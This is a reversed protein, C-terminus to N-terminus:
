RNKKYKRFIMPMFFQSQLNIQLPYRLARRLKRFHHRGLKKKHDIYKDIRQLGDKKSNYRDTTEQATDLYNRYNTWRQLFGGGSKIPPRAMIKNIYEGDNIINKKNSLKHLLDRRKTDCERSINRSAQADRRKTVRNTLKSFRNEMKQQHDTLVDRDSKKQDLKKALKNCIVEQKKAFQTMQNDLNKLEKNRQKLENSTENGNLPKIDKISNDFKDLQDDDSLTTIVNATTAVFDKNAILNDSRELMADKDNTIKPNALMFAKDDMLNNQRTIALDDEKVATPSLEDDANYAEDFEQDVLAEDIFQQITGEGSMANTSKDYFKDFKEKHDINRLNENEEDIQKIQEKLSQKYAVMERLGKLKDALDNKLNDFKEKEAKVQAQEGELMQQLQEQKEQELEYIDEISSSLNSAEDNVEEVGKENDLGHIKLENNRNLLYDIAKEIEKNDLRDEATVEQKLENKVRIQLKKTEEHLKRLEKIDTRNEMRKLRNLAKFKSFQERRQQKIQKAQQARESQLKRRLKKRTNFKKGLRKSNMRDKQKLATVKQPSMYLDSESLYTPGRFIQIDSKGDMREHLMLEQKDILLPLGNDYAYRDYEKRAKKDLANNGHLEYGPLKKQFDTAPEEHGKRIKHTTRLEEIKAEQQAYELSDVYHVDSNEISPLNPLTQEIDKSKSQADPWPTKM